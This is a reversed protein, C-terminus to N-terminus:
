KRTFQQGTVGADDNREFVTGAASTRMGATAPVPIRARRRGSKKRRRDLYMMWGTIPFLPMALSALMMLIVGAEGFFSGSHLAFISSMIKAGAPKKAYREHQLIKGDGALMVRNTARDHRADRDLYTIQVPQGPKEPLRLTATSFEPVERRFTDWAPGINAQRSERPMEIDREGERAKNQKGADAKASDPPAARNGGTGAQVPRPAGTIAFLVDRYWGYSWYLGTLGAMLYFLLAWTGIVAHLEWLFSRGKLALRFVFWARWDSLRRPWRLYLGSLCLVVLGITAAGVIQKGTEGAALWRHIQMVTRFFAEGQPKALVAGTYPDVYRMEGRRQGGPVSQAPQADAAFGVKATDKPDASLTVTVVRRGPNATQMREILEVPSLAQTGPPMIHMVGPNFFYLLQHEFSLMGGTVGVVAMVIGATIGILWHAQFLIKRLM